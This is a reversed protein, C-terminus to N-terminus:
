WFRSSCIAFPTMDAVSWKEKKDEGRRHGVDTVLYIVNLETTPDTRRELGNRKRIREAEEAWRV